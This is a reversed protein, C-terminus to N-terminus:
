EPDCTDSASKDKSFWRDLTPVRWAAFRRFTLPWVIGAFLVMILYRLARAVYVNGFCLINLPVKLFTKLLLVGVFGIVVKVIQAYWRGQTPFNLWKTDVVYVAAVGILCGHMMAAAEKASTLNVGDTLEQPFVFAFILFGVSLLYSGALVYPMCRRFRQETSFMPALALVLATAIGLSTLVDAPTHVGLYMRSFAVLLILTICLISKRLRPRTLAIAGFTGTVNQTHGSPFSYGTAEEIASEVPSFTPDKVWPRPVRFLLKLVQNLLTGIFCTLLVFYGDKKNFCWLLCIAIVLFGLEGGLHTIVSFFADLIPNRIESLARLFGM